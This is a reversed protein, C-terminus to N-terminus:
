EDLYPDAIRFRALIRAEQAEMCRAEDDQEHDHGCAHLVGHVLLHALHDTLAIRRARAERALVPLCIVIDAEIAEGEPHLDEYAFTLVNTAYDRGRYQLNLMRGEAMGVFRLTLRADQDIAAAAWRRLQPRSAPLERVGDGLQIALSLTARRKPPPGAETTWRPSARM